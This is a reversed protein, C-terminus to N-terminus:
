AAATRIVTYPPGPNESRAALTVTPRGDVITIGLFQAHPTPASATIDTVDWNELDTTTAIAWADAGAVVGALAETAEQLTISVRVEGAGDLLEFTAGVTRVPGDSVGGVNGGLYEGTVDDVFTTDLNPSIEARVGDKVVRAIGQAGDAFLVVALQGDRLHAGMTTWRAFGNGGVARGLDYPIWSAGDTSTSLQGSVSVLTPGFRGIPSVDLETAGVVSWSRGDGSAWTTTVTVDSSRYGVVLFGDDDAIVRGFQQPDFPFGTAAGDLVRGDPLVTFINSREGIYAAAEPSIGLDTWPITRDTLVVGTSNVDRATMMVDEGVLAVLDAVGVTTNTAVVSTGDRGGVVATTRASLLPDAAAPGLDIPLDVSSWSEGDDTSTMLRLSGGDSGDPTGALRIVGDTDRDADVIALGPDSAAPRWTAGDDSVYVTSTGDSVTYAITGESIWSFPDVGPPLLSTTAELAPVSEAPQSTAPTTPGPTTTGPTTTGPTTTDPTTTDPIATPAPPIETVVTTPRRAVSVAAVLGVVIVISSAAVLTTRRRQRQQARAAAARVTGPRVTARDGQMALHRELREFLEADPTNTSM